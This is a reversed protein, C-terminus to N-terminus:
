GRYGGVEAVASVQRVARGAGPTHKMRAALTADATLTADHVCEPRGSIRDTKRDPLDRFPQNRSLPWSFARGM